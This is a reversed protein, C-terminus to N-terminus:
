PLGTVFVRTFIYNLGFGAIMSVTVIAPFARPRFRSLLGITVMLYVTTAVSFGLLGEAMVAVYAPTVFAVTIALDYRPRAATADLIPKKHAPVSTARNRLQHVSRIILWISLGIILVALGRPFAASGLPEFSGEPIGVTGGIVVVSVVCAALALVLDARPARSKEAIM